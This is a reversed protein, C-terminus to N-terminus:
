TVTSARVLLQDSTTKTSASTVGGYTTPRIVRLSASWASSSRSFWSSTRRSATRASRSRIARSSCSTIAWETLAM